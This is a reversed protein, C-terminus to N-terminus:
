NPTWKLVEAILELTAHGAIILFYAVFAFAVGIPIAVWLDEKRIKNEM